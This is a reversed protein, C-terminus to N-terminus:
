RNEWRAETCSGGCTVQNRRRVAFWQRCVGCLREAPVLADQNRDNHLKGAWVGYPENRGATACEDVVPCTKCLAKAERTGYPTLPFFWEIPKGRCAAQDRWGGLITQHAAVSQPSSM